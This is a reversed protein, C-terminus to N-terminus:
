TGFCLGYAGCRGYRGFCPGPDSCAMPWEFLTREGRMTEVDRRAIDHAADWIQRPLKRNRDRTKPVKAKAVRWPKRKGIMNVYVGSFSSSGMWRAETNFAQEGLHWFLGFGVDARLADEARGPEVNSLCKHDVISAKHQRYPDLSVMDDRRTVIIPHGHHPHDPNDLPDIKVKVKGSLSTAYENGPLPIEQVVWLGWLPIALELTGIVGVQLCEIGAVLGPPEPCNQEYKSLMTLVLEVHEHGRKNVECWARVGDEPPMLQDPDTIMVDVDRGDIKTGVLVGEQMGAQAQRAGQRGHFHALGTHGMSGVTLAEAPVLKDVEYPELTEGNPGARRGEYLPVLRNKYAFLQDCKLKPGYYSAGKPSRGSDILLPVPIVLDTTM